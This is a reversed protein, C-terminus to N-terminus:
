SYQCPPCAHLEQNDVMAVELRVKDVPQFVKSTVPRHSRDVVMTCTYNPLHEVNERVGTIVRDLLPGQALAVVPLLVLSSLAPWRM